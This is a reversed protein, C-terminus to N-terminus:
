SPYPLRQEQANLDPEGIEVFPHPSTAVERAYIWIMSLPVAALALLIIFFWRNARPDSDWGLGPLTLLLTPAMVLPILSQLLVTTKTTAARSKMFLQQVVASACYMLLVACGLGLRMLRDPSHWASWATLLRVALFCSVSLLPLTLAARYLARRQTAADGLGPLLALEAFSGSRDLVLQAVGNMFWIWIVVAALSLYVPVLGSWPRVNSTLLFGLPTSWLVIGLARISFARSTVPVAAFARGFFMRIAQTPSRVSYRQTDAKAGQRSRRDFRLHRLLIPPLLGLPASLTFWISHREEPILFWFLLIPLALTLGLLWAYSRLLVQRYAPLRLECADFRFRSFALGAVLAIVFAGGSWLITAFIAAGHLQSSGILLAPGLCFAYVGLIPAMRDVGFTALLERPAVGSM